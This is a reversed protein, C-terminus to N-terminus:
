RDPRQRLCTNAVERDSIVVIPTRGTDMRYIPGYRDAWGELILHFRATRLQHANGLLPLRRPGPLDRLTRTATLTSM